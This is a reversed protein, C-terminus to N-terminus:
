IISILYFKFNLEETANTVNWHENAMQQLYGGYQVPSTYFKEM